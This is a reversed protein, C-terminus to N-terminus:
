KLMGIARLWEFQQEMYGPAYIPAADMDHGNMRIGHGASPYSIVTDHPNGAITLQEQWRQVAIGSPVFPDRGGVFVLVPMRLNKMDATPDYIAVWSWKGRDADDPMVRRLNIVAAWKQAESREIAKLLADRDRGTELYQMYRDLLKHAAEWDAESFGNHLMENRYGYYEVERPTAGGGTICIIFAIGQRQMSLRPLVWGSQSIGWAGVRQADVNPLASLLQIAALADGALDDLSERTWDGASKGAGQKDYVLTVMGQVAFNRAMDLLPARTEAGAGPMLVMAPFTGPTVPSFLTGGLQVDGRPFQVDRAAVDLALAPSSLGLLLAFVSPWQVSSKV